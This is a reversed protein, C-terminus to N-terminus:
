VRHPVVLKSRFPRLVNCSCKCIPVLEMSMVHVSLVEKVPLPELQSLTQRQEVGSMNGDKSDCNEKQCPGLPSGSKVHITGIGGLLHIYDRAWPGRTFYSYPQIHFKPKKLCLELFDKGVCSFFVLQLLRLFLVGALFSIRGDGHWARWQGSPLRRWM